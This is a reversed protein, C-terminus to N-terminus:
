RKRRLSAKGEDDDETGEARAEKYKRGESPVEGREGGSGVNGVRRCREKKSGEEQQRLSMGSMGQRLVGCAATRSERNQICLKGWPM